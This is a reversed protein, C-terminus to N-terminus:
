STAMLAYFLRCLNQLINLSVGMVGKVWERSVRSSMRLEKCTDSRDSVHNVVCNCAELGEQQKVELVRARNGLCGRALTFGRVAM